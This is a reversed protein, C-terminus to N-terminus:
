RETLRGRNFTSAKEKMAQALILNVIKIVPAEESDTALRDLDIDERKKAQV